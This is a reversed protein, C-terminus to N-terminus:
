VVSKRDAGLLLALLGVAEAWRARSLLRVALAGSTNWAILLPTMLMLGLLDAVIWVRWVPWFMPGPSGFSLLAAGLVASCACAPISAVAVFGFVERLRCLTIPLGAYRVLAWSALWSEVVNAAAFGVSLGLSNGSWLNAILNAAGGGVLLWRWEQRKRQLMVGILLGNPLWFGAIQEPQVVFLLSFRALVLYALTTVIACAQPKWLCPSSYESPPEGSPTEM